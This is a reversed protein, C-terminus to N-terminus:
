LRHAVFTEHESTAGEDPEARECVLSVDNRECCSPKNSPLLEDDQATGQELRAGASQDDVITGAYEGTGHSECSLEVMAEFLDLALVADQPASSLM